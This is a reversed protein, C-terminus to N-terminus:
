IPAGNTGSLRSLQAGSQIILDGNALFRAKDASGPRSWIARGDRHLLVLDARAVGSGIQDAADTISVLARDSQTALVGISYFAYYGAWHSFRGVRVASSTGGSPAMTTTSFASGTYSLGMFSGDEFSLPWYSGGNPAPEIVEVSDEYQWIPEVQAHSPPTLSLLSAFLLALLSFPHKTM